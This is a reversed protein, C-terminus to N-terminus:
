ILHMYRVKVQVKGQPQAYGCSTVTCRTQITSTIAADVVQRLCPPRRQLPRRLEELEQLVTLLLLRPQHLPHTESLRLVDAFIEDHTQHENFSVLYIVAARQATEDTITHRKNWSCRDMKHRKNYQVSLRTACHISIPGTQTHTNAVPLRALPCHRNGRYSSIAHM